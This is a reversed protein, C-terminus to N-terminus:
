VLLIWFSFFLHSEEERGLVTGKTTKVYNLTKETSRQLKNLETWLDEQVNGLSRVEGIAKATEAGNKALKMKIIDVEELLDFKRDIVKDVHLIEQVLKVVSFIEGQM